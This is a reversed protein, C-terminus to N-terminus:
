LTLPGWTQNCVFCHLWNDKISTSPHKDDHSPCQINGKRHGGILNTMPYERARQIMDQTFGKGKKDKYPSYLSHIQREIKKYEHFLLRTLKERIILEAKNKANGKLALVNSVQTGIEKLQDELYKRRMTVAWSLHLDFVKAHELIFFTRL